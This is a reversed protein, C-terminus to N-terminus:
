YHKWPSVGAFQHPHFYNKTEPNIEAIVKNEAADCRKVRSVFRTGESDFAEVEIEFVRDQIPTNLLDDAFHGVFGKNLTLDSKEQSSLYYLEDNETNVKGWSHPLADLKQGNLWYETETWNPFQVVREELKGVVFYNANTPIPTKRSVSSKSLDKITSSKSIGFSTIRMTGGGKGLYIGNHFLTAGSNGSNEFGYYNVESSLDNDTLYIACKNHLFEGDITLYLYRLNHDSVRGVFLSKNQIVIHFPKYWLDLKLIEIRNEEPFKHAEFIVDHENKIIIKGNSTEVDWHSTDSLWENEKIEFLKEGNHKKFLGTFTVEAEFPGADSNYQFSLVNLGNINIINQTNKFISKGIKIDVPNKFGYFFDNNRIQPVHTETKIRRYFEILQQKSYNERGNTGTPRPNHSPCALCIKDPDHEKADNFEPILHEYTYFANRCNPVVCGFKSNQRVKLKIRDSIHRSLGHRNTQKTGM